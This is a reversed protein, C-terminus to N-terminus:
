CMRQCPQLFRKPPQLILCFIWSSVSWRLARNWMVRHDESYLCSLWANLFTARMLKLNKLHGEMGMNESMRGYTVVSYVFGFCSMTPTPVNLVLWRPLLCNLFELYLSFSYFPYMINDVVTECELWFRSVRCAWLPFMCKAPSYDVKSPALIVGMTSQSSLCIRASSRAILEPWWYPYPCLEPVVITFPIQFSYLFKLVPGVLGFPLFVYPNSM